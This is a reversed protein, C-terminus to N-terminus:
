ELFASHSSHLYRGTCMSFVCMTVGSVRDIIAASENMVVQGTGTVVTRYQAIGVCLTFLMGLIKLNWITDVMCHQLFRRCARYM